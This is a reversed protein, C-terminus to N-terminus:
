GNGYKELLATAVYHMVEHFNEIHWSKALKMIVRECAEFFRQKEAQSM